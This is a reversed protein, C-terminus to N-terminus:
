ENACRESHIATGDTASFIAGAATDDRCLMEIQYQLSDITSPGLITKLFLNWAKATKLFDEIKIGTIEKKLLAAPEIKISADMFGSEDIPRMGLFADLARSADMLLDDKAACAKDPDPKVYFGAARAQDDMNSTNYSIGFEVTTNTACRPIGSPYINIYVLVPDKGGANIVAAIARARGAILTAITPLEHNPGSNWVSPVSELAQVHALNKRGTSKCAVLATTSLVTMSVLTIAKITKMM